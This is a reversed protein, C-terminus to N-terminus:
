HSTSVLCAIWRPVSASTSAGCQCRAACIRMAMARFGNAPRTWNVPVHAWSRWNRMGVIRIRGPFRTSISSAFLENGFSWGVVSPHNRDRLVLGDYHEAFRQWAVPAEFNLQISSGFLATEDLVVLGMEDALELYHRPHIQAHPRVANGGFDKIMQYWAWVYRRSLTYPGFPHLLDGVLQLPRGNLLLSNGSLKFQRWGFRTSQRDLTQGGQVVSLVAAYLNPAAPSWTQLRGGAKERLTLTTRAGPPLSRAIAPLTMAAGGLKWKPEPASLIDKGALNQWPAIEGSVTVEQARDSANRLTVELELSDQDVLPKVFVEDVRVSPLGLLFVDQWIGTLRETESGCPYPARMKPYRASRLNFLAHARVGVLLENEEARKVLRTIDLEFPLYKDFHTGAVQGNVLVQCEGAVAEFRLVLRRDGWDAPVRFSRRLWGMEVGDWAAPYSPFYLAGPDYPHETGEGATRRGGWTNVNWPSPIKIRTSDWGGPTPASLGPPEGTDRKFGLPLAVPQFQWSGNLCLERRYPQEVPKVWGDAPAFDRTFQVPESGAAWAPSTLGALGLM